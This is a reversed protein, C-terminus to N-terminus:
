NKRTGLVSLTSTLEKQKKNLAINLDENEKNLRQVEKELAEIRATEYTM